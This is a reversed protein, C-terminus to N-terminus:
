LRLHQLLRVQFESPCASIYEVSTNSFSYSYTNNNNNSPTLSTNPASPLSFLARHSSSQMDRSIQNCTVTLYCCQMDNVILARQTIATVSLYYVFRFITPIKSLRVMIGNFLTGSCSFMFDFHDNVFVM